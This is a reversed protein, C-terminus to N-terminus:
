VRIFSPVAYFSTQELRLGKESCYEDAARTAGEVANYDDFVILGGSVVRPGLVRLCEATPEYVDLDLHLLAIRLHSNEDCFRAVTEFVDGAVLKVNEFGKNEMCLRLDTESIGEGGAGEFREIFEMDKESAVNARPFKGFADFGIIARAHDNELYNRFSAFRVLSAGKYVGCEVIAGAVELVSQYLEYHALMKAIRSPHSRLYFTNEADWVNEAPEIRYNSM